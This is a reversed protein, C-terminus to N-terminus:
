GAPRVLVAQASTRQNEEHPWIMSFLLLDEDGIDGLHYTELSNGALDFTGWDVGNNSYVVTVGPEPAKGDPTFRSGYVLFVGLPTGRVDQLVRDGVDIDPALNALTVTEWPSTGVRRQLTPEPEEYFVEEVLPDRAPLDIAEDASTDDLVTTTAIAGEEAPGEEYEIYASEDWWVRFTFDGARPEPFYPDHSIGGEEMEDYRRIEQTWDTGNTTSWLIEAEVEPEGNTDWVSVTLRDDTTMAHGVQFSDDFPKGIDTFRQGDFSYTTAWTKWSEPPTFGIEEWTTFVPEPFDFSPVNEVSEWEENWQCGNNAFEERIWDLMSNYELLLEEQPPGDQGAEFEPSNMWERFDVLNPLYQAEVAACRDAPDIEIYSLGTHNFDRLNFETVDL